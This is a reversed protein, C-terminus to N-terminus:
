GVDGYQKLATHLGWSAYREGRAIRWRSLLYVADPRVLVVQLQSVVDIVGRPTECLDM